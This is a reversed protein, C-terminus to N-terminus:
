QRSLAITKEVPIAVDITADEVVVYATLSEVEFHGFAL